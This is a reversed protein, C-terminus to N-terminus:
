APPTHRTARTVIDNSAIASRGPTPEDSAPCRPTLDPRPEAKGEPESRRRVVPALLFGALMAALVVMAAYAVTLRLFRDALQRRNM